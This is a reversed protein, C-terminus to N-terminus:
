AIRLLRMLNGGLIAEKEANSLFTADLILDLTDPWMFPLDSGYVVQSAGMEAVLHRLGEASFVMSDALLQTKLYESPRKKNICEAGGRRCTVETRGLYSPLFGGGHAGCIRLGPFRDLTGDFILHSFFVTTELPNGIINGLNVRADLGGERIVNKAGDPHMFIPVGLEEAKAWFPDFRPSSPVEGAVHGGISAGRLGLNKVAHELQEAALDPHQLAVSTLGVFRDPHADCWAALGEDQVRILRRALDEDAAYWWYQNVSLAQVDIGREDMWQLREPGLIRNASVNHGALNTGRILDDVERFGCHAHIDVVKVRRGGVSIERRAAQAAADVSRGMVFTGATAYAVTKLFNRRNTM